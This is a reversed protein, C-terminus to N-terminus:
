PLSNRRWVQNLVLKLSEVAEAHRAQEKIVRYFRFGLLLQTDSAGLAAVGQPSLPDSSALPWEVLRVLETSSFAPWGGMATVSGALVWCVLYVRGPRRSARYSPDHYNKLFNAVTERLRQVLQQWRDGGRFARGSIGIITSPGIPAQYGDSEAVREMRICTKFRSQQSCDATGQEPGASRDTM